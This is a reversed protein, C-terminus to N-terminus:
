LAEFELNVMFNGVCCILYTDHYFFDCQSTM